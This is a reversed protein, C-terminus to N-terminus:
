CLNVKALSPTIQLNNSLLEVTENLLREVQEENLCDYNFYEPDTQSPDYNDLDNDDGTNYYDYDDYCDTDSCEMDSEGGQSEANVNDDMMEAVNLQLRIDVNQQLSM